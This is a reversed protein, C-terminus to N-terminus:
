DLDGAVFEQMYKDMADRWESRADSLDSLHESFTREHMGKPREPLWPEVNPHVRRRQADVKAFTRRYRLEAQKLEDGSTRSSTYSLDYCERCAFRGERPPLYLKGVRTDCDPCLFWPRVGGFNCETYDLPIWYDYKNVGSGQTDTTTYELQIRAARPTGINELEVDDELYAYIRVDPDERDGWWLSGSKGPLKTITLIRNAELHRCEEVTLTSAYESRGSGFGGM